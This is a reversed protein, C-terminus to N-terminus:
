SNRESGEYCGPETNLKIVEILEHKDITSEQSKMIKEILEQSGECDLATALLFEVM